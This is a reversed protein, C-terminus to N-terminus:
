SDAALQEAEILNLWRRLQVDPPLREGGSCQKVETLAAADSKELGCARFRDEGVMNSYNAFTVAITREKPQASRDGFSPGLVTEVLTATATCIPQRANLRRAMECECADSLEPASSVERMSSKTGVFRMEDRSPELKEAADDAFGGLIWSVMEPFSGVNRGFDNFYRDAIPQEALKAPDLNLECIRELRQGDESIAVIDGARIPALGVARDLQHYAIVDPTSVNTMVHYTVAGVLLGGVILVPTRLSM